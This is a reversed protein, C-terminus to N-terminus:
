RALPTSLGRSGPAEPLWGRLDFALHVRGLTTCGSPRPDDPCGSRCRGPAKSNGLLEAPALGAHMPICVAASAM